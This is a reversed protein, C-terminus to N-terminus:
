AAIPEDSQMHPSGVLYKGMELLRQAIQQQLAITNVPEHKMLRRLIMLQTRLMDGEAVATLVKRAASELREMAGALYLRTLVIAPEAAREGQVTAIKEARIVCSEAAYAEMILDALAGMVEQQEALAQLYKQSAAGACALVIKKANAVMTREAALPGEEAETASPGSLLEDMLKKIAPLLPLRGSMARKLLWGTIILRNIENTGEFIRNVRSDRYAREAPYEEVFGYGGYIQVTEDVVFDLMESGAVKIISCEVAYEEIAKRIEKAAEPAEKDVEALAADMMGVTRYVMSETAYIRAAMRALKERVMGFESITKGFAKRQAAYAIANQLSARAGGVCMAGLKFRGINLINFAIIHGGGIEGLVNEAPVQCDNMILPCTSSGRIGMKHEEAGVSFGPFSREVIFATFKEGDVKAFLIFLDAFAANTIWMKEGNLLYHKGDPALVAKTRSNLADSGSSSESLAYAGIWEGSALRPLYRQKQGATGFYVIPLTGIGTHAGFSVSFSGNKAIHDGIIASSVKDMEMGGYQEPVDASTLGLESAKKLLERTLAWDKHEIRDALPVIENSSFQDTMAAIQRHEESFDEPTFVDEPARTELLFSGGAIKKMTSISAM